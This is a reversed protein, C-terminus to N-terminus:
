DGSDEEDDEGIVIAAGAPEIVIEDEDGEEISIAARAEEQREREEEARRAREAEEEARRREAEQRRLEEEKRRQREEPTLELDVVELNTVEEGFVFVDDSDEITDIIDEMEFDLKIDEAENEALIEAATKPREGTFLETIMPPLEVKQQTKDVALDDEVTRIWRGRNADFLNLRLTLHSSDSGDSVTGVIMRTHEHETAFESLCAKSEACGKDFDGPEYQNTLECHGVIDVETNVLTTLALLGGNGTFRGSGTFQLVGCTTMPEREVVEVPTRPERPEEREAIAERPEPEPEPEPAVRRGTLLENALLPLTALLVEKSARIEEEVDRQSRGKKPDFLELQLRVTRDARGDTVVGTILHELNRDRALKKLCRPNDQCGEDVEEVPILVASSCEDRDRFEQAVLASLKVRVSKGALEGDGAFELVGCTQAAAGRVGGLSLALSAVVVGWRAVNSVM